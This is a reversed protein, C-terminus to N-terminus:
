NPDKGKSFFVFGAIIHAINMPIYGGGSLFINAFLSLIQITILCIGLLKFILQRTKSHKCIKETMSGTLYYSVTPALITLMLDPSDGRVSFFWNLLKELFPVSQLIMIIFSFILAVVTLVLNYVIFALITDLIATIVKPKTQKVNDAQDQSHTHISREKIIATNQTSCVASNETQNYTIKRNEEIIRRNEEYRKRSEELREVRKREQEAVFRKHDEDCVESYKKWLVERLLDSWGLECLQKNISEIEEEFFTLQQKVRMQANSSMDAFDDSESAKSSLYDLTHQITSRKKFLEQFELLAIKESDNTCDDISANPLLKFPNYRHDRESM